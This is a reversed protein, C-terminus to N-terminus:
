VKWRSPRAPQRLGHSSLNVIACGDFDLLSVISRICRAPQRVLFAFLSQWPEKDHHVRGMKPWSVSAKTGCATRAEPVM